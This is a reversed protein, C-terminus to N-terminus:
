ELKDYEEKWPINGKEFEEKLRKKLEKLMVKLEPFDSVAKDPYNPIFDADDYTKYGAEVLQTVTEIKDLAKIFKAEKSTSNDYEHWLDYIEKGLDEPLLNKLKNMAVIELKRKEDRSVDGKAITIADIDGTVAEALDHFIALKIAHNVDLNLSLEKAVIPVMLSLRWSHEATSEQRGTKTRCYRTSSKLGEVEHLFDFIKKINSM